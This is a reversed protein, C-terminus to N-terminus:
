SGDGSVNLRNRREYFFAVFSVPVLFSGVLAITPFLNPNGTSVFAIITSVYIVFGLILIRFWFRRNKVTGLANGDGPTNDLKM